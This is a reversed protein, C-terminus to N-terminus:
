LEGYPASNSRKQSYNRSAMPPEYGTSVRIVNYSALLESMQSIKMKTPKNLLPESWRSVERVKPLSLDLLSDRHPASNIIPFVGELCSFPTIGDRNLARVISDLGRGVNQQRDHRM